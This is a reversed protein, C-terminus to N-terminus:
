YRITFYEKVQNKRFFVIGIQFLDLAVTVEPMASIEKWAREMEASWYIDDLVFVSNEHAKALCQRFYRMTPEYRHNGDFFAFDLKEVKRLTESLTEDLNGEMLRINGLRLDKFNERAIRATEPCGEFTFVTASRRASALYATTLGLSTGLDFITEPAFHNVLRFLLQAYRAPKASNKALDKIQRQRNANTKSGAGFDKIQITRKDALLAQRLDEVLLYAGFTGKHDIVDHQLNFVFPSHIGHLRFSRTLHQAYKAALRLPFM